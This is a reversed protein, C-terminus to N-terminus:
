DVGRGLKLDKMNPPQSNAASSLAPQPSGCDLELVLQSWQSLSASQALTVPATHRLSEIQTSAVPRGM